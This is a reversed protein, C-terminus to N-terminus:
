VIVWLIQACARKPCDLKRTDAAASGDPKANRAAWIRRERQLARSDRQQGSSPRIPAHLHVPDDLEIGRIVGALVDM